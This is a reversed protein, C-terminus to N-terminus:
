LNQLRVFSNKYSYLIMQVRVFGKQVFPVGRREVPVAHRMGGGGGGGTRSCPAAHGGEGGGM